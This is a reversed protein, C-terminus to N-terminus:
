LGCTSSNIMELLLNLIGPFLFILLAIIVRTLAKKTSAKLDSDPKGGTVAKLFDLSTTFILAIPVAWRIISIITRLISMSGEGFMEQCDTATDAFFSISTLANVKITYTFFITLLLLSYFTKKHM